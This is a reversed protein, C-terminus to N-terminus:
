SHPANTSASGDQDTSPPANPDPKSQRHKDPKPQTNKASALGPCGYGDCPPGPARLGAISVPSFLVLLLLALGIGAIKTKM